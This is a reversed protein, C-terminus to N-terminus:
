DLINTHWRGNTFDPIDMVAGGKAISMESLATIAMWSAADYVDVPMMTDNRLAEFFKKFELYDMGDHSGQVGENLYQKWVPHDYEEQYEVANNICKKRWDFDHIRDEERDLFVSDTVEEYMGKTGRVTFNRSYYRPLTTDLTLVITEGGACKIVTTVIDGQAFTKNKLFEDDSKNELIYEHLGAAKSATSTLTVMRNGHNIKLVKAIPGLDHTPYNECNRTLYNRLRYHRNEKGFAIEHRLDHMYGGQCHVIEGLLGKEVMNLVMMERRGFCCNELFMFPTGTKEYAEVLEYCEKLTYAGGVEMAVAKGANMAAVAIEVHSEWATAIIITNVNEDAIVDHYDTYIAPRAQGAKEVADAAGQARDEYTDCVAAVKEGQKLVVSKLLGMGRCGCGIYGVKINEM